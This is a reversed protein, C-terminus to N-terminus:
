PPPWVSADPRRARLSAVVVEGRFIGRDISTPTKRGGRLTIGRRRGIVHVQLITAVGPFQLVAPYPVRSM